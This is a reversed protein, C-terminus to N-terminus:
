SKPASGDTQSGTLTLAILADVPIRRIKTGIRVSPLDGNRVLTALTRPSVSLWKAADDMSVLGRGTLPCDYPPNTM